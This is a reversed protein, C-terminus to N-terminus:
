KKQWLKM